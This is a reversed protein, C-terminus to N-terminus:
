PSVSDCPTLLTVPLAECVKCFRGAPSNCGRGKVRGWVAGGVRFAGKEPGAGHGLADEDDEAVRGGGAETRGKGVGVGVGGFGCAM